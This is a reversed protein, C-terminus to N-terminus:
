PRAMALRASIPVAEFRTEHEFGGDKGLVRVVSPRTICALTEANDIADERTPCLRQHASEPDQGGICVYWGRSREVVYYTTCGM